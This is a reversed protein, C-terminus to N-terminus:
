PGMRRRVHLLGHAAVNKLTRALEPQRFLDGTVYFKGDPRSFIKKTEPFRGLVSKRYDIWWEMVPTVVEGEEAMAIAPAFIRPFPLKGFRDHGAQVGAMFGPVLATRGGSKPITGANKEQLPVNYQSDLYHVQGNQADYYLLMMIGGFSVYSGGVQVIECLSTALAADMASGGEKLIELAADVAKGGSTAVVM